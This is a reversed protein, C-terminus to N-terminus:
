APGLQDRLRASRVARAASLEGCLWKLTDQAAQDIQPADPWHKRKLASEMPTLEAGCEMEMSAALYLWAQAIANMQAELKLIRGETTDM